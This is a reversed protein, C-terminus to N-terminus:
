GPEGVTFSTHFLDRPDTYEKIQQLRAYEAGSDYYLNQTATLSMDLQAGNTGKDEFSGWLMRVDAGGSFEGLLGKMSNQFDEAKSEYGEEYFVDFVLQVLADRRQMHTTKRQGNASFDGGGIVGQFVVKLGSSEYANNVLDVFSDRFLASFPIKTIHLSKKYPLDFERGSKPLGFRGIQRVGDDAIVSLPAAGAVPSGLHAAYRVVAPVAADVADVVAKVEQLGAKDTCMTEVLLVPPRPFDGSVVTLFLDIGPPLQDSNQREAWQRFQEMAARFGDKITGLAYSYPYAYSFGASDPYDKDSVLDFTIETLVGWSSPGGGLVARFVDDDTPAGAGVGASPRIFERELYVDKGPPSHPDRTVMKFSRVWDLCAGLSRLQHGIGGTQVHGGLNV